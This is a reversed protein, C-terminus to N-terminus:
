APQHVLSSEEGQPCDGPLPHRHLAHRAEPRGWAGPDPSWAGQRTLSQRPCSNSPTYDSMTTSGAPLSPLAPAPAGLGSQSSSWVATRRFQLEPEVNADHRSRNTHLDQPDSCPAGNDAYHDHLRAPRAAVSLSDAGATPPKFGSKRDDGDRARAAVSVRRPM